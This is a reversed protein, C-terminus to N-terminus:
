GEEGDFGLNGRVPAADHPQRQLVDAAVASRGAGQRLQNCTRCTMVALTESESDTAPPSKTGTNSEAKTRYSGGRRIKALNASGLAGRDVQLRM